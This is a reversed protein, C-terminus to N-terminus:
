EKPMIYEIGTIKNTGNAIASQRAFFVFLSMFEDFPFAITVNITKCRPLGSPTVHVPTEGIWQGSDWDFKRKDQILHWLESGSNLYQVAESQSIEILKCDKIIHYKNDFYFVKDVNNHEKLLERIQDKFKTKM